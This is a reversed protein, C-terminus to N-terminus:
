KNEKDTAKTRIDDGTFLEKTIDTSSIVENQALNTETTNMGSLGVLNGETDVSQTLKNGSEKAREINEQIAKQKTDRVRQDFHEKAKEDNKNKEHMLQNLEDELYEVKGTKYAEPEWPMWVGVPGVFIDHNPDQERLLKCRLEAEQQTPFSGRVKIGRVSTQFNNKEAFDKEITDENQDLFNKYEAEITDDILNNKESKIFQQYDEMIKEFDLNHKYSLFNLFQQFKNMSKSFDFFKLFQEFFFLNKQKLIKDPSIFSVCVYKQGAIAKDEELIDVVKSKTNDTDM